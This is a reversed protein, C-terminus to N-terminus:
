SALSRVFNTATRTPKFIPYLIFFDVINGHGKASTVASNRM